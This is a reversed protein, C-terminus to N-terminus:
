PIELILGHSALRAFDDVNTTPLPAGDRIAAAAIMCDALTGKRRGTSNFLKVALEADDQSFPRRDTVVRLAIEAAPPSLPGCLFEAWVVTCMALQEGAAM